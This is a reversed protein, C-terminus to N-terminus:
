GSKRKGAHVGMRQLTDRLKETSPMCNLGFHEPTQLEIWARIESQLEGPSLDSLSDVVADGTGNSLLATRVASAIGCEIRAARKHASLRGHMERTETAALHRSVLDAIEDRWPIASAKIANTIRLRDRHLPYPAANM